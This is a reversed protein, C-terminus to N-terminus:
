VNMVDEFIALKTVMRGDEFILLLDTAQFYYFRCVTSLNLCVGQRTSIMFRYDRRSNLSSCM